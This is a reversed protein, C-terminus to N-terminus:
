AVDRELTKFKENLGSANEVTSWCIPCIFSGHKVEVLKSNGKEDFTEIIRDSMTQTLCNQCYEAKSCFLCKLFPRGPTGCDPTKCIVM